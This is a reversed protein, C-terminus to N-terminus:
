QRVIENGAVAEATGKRAARIRPKISRPGPKVTVVPSPATRVTEEAVSGLLLRGLGKRGHTGLVIVDTDTDRATRL